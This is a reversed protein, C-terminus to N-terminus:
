SRTSLSSVASHSKQLSLSAGFHGLLWSGRHHKTSLMKGLDASIADLLKNCEAFSCCNIMMDKLYFVEAANYFLINFCSGNFRALPLACM